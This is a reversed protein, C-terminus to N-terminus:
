RSPSHFIKEDVSMALLCGGSAIGVYIVYRRTPPGRDTHSSGNIQTIKFIPRRSDDEKNGLDSDSGKNVQRLKETDNVEGKSIVTM